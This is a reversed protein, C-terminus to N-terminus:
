EAAMRLLEIERQLRQIELQYIQSCDIRRPRQGLPVTLRVYAMAERDRSDGIYARSPDQPPGAASGAAGLDLYAGNSNISQRCRTGGATEISDEGGPGTPAQPLYIGDNGAWAPASLLLFAAPLLGRAFARM